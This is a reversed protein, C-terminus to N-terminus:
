VKSAASRRPWSLLSSATSSSSPSGRSRRGATPGRLTPAASSSWMGTHLTVESDDLVLTIEGSLVIGYDISATRHIRSQLGLDDLFGPWFENFRISTGRPPPPVTPDRQTPEDEVVTIPAPAGETSWVEHFWVGDTPLERSVPVPGDSLV